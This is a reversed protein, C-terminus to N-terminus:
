LFVSVIVGINGDYSVGVATNQMFPIFDSIRRDIYLYPKIENSLGLGLGYRNWYALRVGLGIQLTKSAIGQFAPYICFGKQKVTLTTQNNNDVTIIAQGEPPLYKIVTIIRDQYKIQQIIKDKYIVTKSKLKEWLVMNEASITTNEITLKDNRNNLIYNNIAFYGVVFACIVYIFKNM